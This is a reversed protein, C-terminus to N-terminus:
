LNNNHAQPQNQWMLLELNVDLNLYLYLCLIINYNWNWWQKLNKVEKALNITRYMGYSPILIVKQSSVTKGKEFGKKLM